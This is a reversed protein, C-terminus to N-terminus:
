FISHALSCCIIAWALLAFLAGIKFRADTTAPRAVSDTQADSSQMEIPTWSRPITMFFVLWDLAYFLLPLYFKIYARTENHRPVFTDAYYTQREQWSGRSTLTLQDLEIPIHHIYYVKSRHRPNM